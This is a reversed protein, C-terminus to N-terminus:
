PVIALTIPAVCPRFSPWYLPFPPTLSVPRQLHPRARGSIFRNRPLRVTFFPPCDCTSFTNRSIASEVCGTRAPQRRNICNVRHVRLDSARQNGCESLGLQPIPLTRARENPYRFQNSEEKIGNKRTNLHRTEVFIAVITIPCPIQFFPVLPPFKIDNCEEKERSLRKM